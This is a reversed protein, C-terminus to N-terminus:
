VQRMGVEGESTAEWEKEQCGEGVEAAARFSM